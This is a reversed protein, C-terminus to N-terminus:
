PQLQHLLALVTGKSYMLRLIAILVGRTCEVWVVAKLEATGGKTKTWNGKLTVAHLVPTLVARATYRQHWSMWDKKVLADVERTITQM